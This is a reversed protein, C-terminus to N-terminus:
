LLVENQRFLSAPGEVAVVDGERIVGLLSSRVDRDPSFLLRGPPASEVEFADIDAQEAEEGTVGAAAFLAGGDHVRRGTESLIDAPRVRNTPWQGLGSTLGHRTNFWLERVPAVALTLRLESTPSADTQVFGAKWMPWVREIPGPPCSLAARRQGGDTRLVIDLSGRQVVAVEGGIEIWGEGTVSYGPTSSGDTFQLNVLQWRTFLPNFSAPVVDLVGSLRIEVEPRACVPCADVLTSGEILRSRVAEGGACTAALAAFPWWAVRLSRASRM